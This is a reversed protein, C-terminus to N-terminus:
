EIGIGYVRGGIQAITNYEVEDNEGVNILKCPLGNSKGNM